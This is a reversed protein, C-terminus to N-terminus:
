DSVKTSRVIKENVLRESMKKVPILLVATGVKL